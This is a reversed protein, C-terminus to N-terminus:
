KAATAVSCFHTATPLRMRWLSTGIIGTAAPKNEVVFPQGFAAQLKDALIRAYIETPGGPPFPVVIRVARNPYSEAGSTQGFIPPSIGLCLVALVIRLM